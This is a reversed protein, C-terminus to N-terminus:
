YLWDKKSGGPYGPTGYYGGVIWLNIDVLAWVGFGGLTAMKFVALIWHRAHWQDVGLVGLWFALLTATREQKYCRESNAREDWGGWSRKDFSIHQEPVILQRELNCVLEPIPRLCGTRRRAATATGRPPGCAGVVRGRSCCVEM